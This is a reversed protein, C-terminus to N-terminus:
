YRVADTLLGPASALLVAMANSPLRFSFSGDSASRISMLLDVVYSTGPAGAYVGPISPDGLRAEVRADELLSGDATRVVGHILRAAVLLLETADFESPGARDVLLSESSCLDETFALLSYSSPLGGIEFRGDTGTKTGAVSRTPEADVFTPELGELAVM